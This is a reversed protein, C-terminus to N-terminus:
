PMRRGTCYWDDWLHLVPLAIMTVVQDFLSCSNCVLPMIVPNTTTVTRQYSTRRQTHLTVLSSQCTHLTVQQQHCLCLYRQLRKTSGKLFLTSFHPEASSGCISSSCNSDTSGGNNNAAVCQGWVVQQVSVARCDISKICMEGRM